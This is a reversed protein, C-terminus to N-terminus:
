NANATPVTVGVLCDRTIISELREASWDETGKPRMPVVLYRLDANSDHVRIAVDDPLVTGFEQLVTRPEYVARSRYARSKYWTPPQGLLFRPYCSCLTCVVMNHVDPTNELAVLNAQSELDIGLGEVAQRADAILAAKFEPELWAKVIVAAARNPYDDDFREIMVRVEEASILGQAELLSQMALNMVQFESPPGGTDDEQIPKDDHDHDHPLDVIPVDFRARVRAMEADLAAESILDRERLVISLGITRREFYSLTSGDSELDECVRRLEDLAGLGKGFTVMQLANAHKEWHSMGHDAVEIPGAAQGGMDHPRPVPAIRDVNAMM